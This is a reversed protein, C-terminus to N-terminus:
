FDILDFDIDINSDLAEIEFNLQIPKLLCNLEVLNLNYLSLINIFNILIKNIKGFIYDFYNIRNKFTMDFIDNITVLIINNNMFFNYGFLKYILLLRKIIENTHIDKIYESPNEISRLKLSFSINGFSCDFISLFRLKLDMLNNIQSEIDKKWFHTKKFSPKIIKILNLLNEQKKILNYFDKLVNISLYYDDLMKTFHLFNYNLFVDFHYKLFLRIILAIDDDKFVDKNKIFLLFFAVQTKSNKIDNEIEPWNIENM